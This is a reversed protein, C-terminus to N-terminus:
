QAKLNKLFAEKLTSFNVKSITILNVIIIVAFM